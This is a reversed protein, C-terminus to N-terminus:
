LAAPETNMAVGLDVGCLHAPDALLRQLREPVPEAVLLSAPAASRPAAAAVAAVSTSGSDRLLAMLSRTCSIRLQYPLSLGPVRALRARSIFWPRRAPVPRKTM